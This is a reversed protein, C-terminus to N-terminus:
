WSATSFASAYPGRWGESGHQRGDENQEHGCAEGRGGVADETPPGGDEEGDHGPEEEGM